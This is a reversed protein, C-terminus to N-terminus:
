EFIKRVILHASIRVYFLTRPPLRPHANTTFQPNQYKKANRSNNTAANGVM